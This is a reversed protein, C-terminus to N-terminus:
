FPELHELKERLALRARYLRGEIARASTGHKLALETQPCGEFYHAIILEQQATPLETLALLLQDRVERRELVDGPIETSVLRNALDAALPPDALPIHAPRRGRERWYTRILNRAIARLRFEYQEPHPDVLNQAHIWLQQMLDDALHTDGGTRVIFYRFLTLACRDFMAEIAGSAEMASCPQRLVGSTAGPM